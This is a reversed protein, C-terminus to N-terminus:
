PLLLFCCAKTSKPPDYMTSIRFLGEFEEFQGPVSMFKPLTLLLTLLPKAVLQVPAFLPLTHHQNSSGNSQLLLVWARVLHVSMKAIKM